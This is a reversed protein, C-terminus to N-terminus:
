YCSCSGEGSYSYNGGCCTKCDDSSTSTKCAASKASNEKPCCGFMNAGFSLAECALVVAFMVRKM